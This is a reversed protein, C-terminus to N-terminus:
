GTGAFKTGAFKCIIMRDRYIQTGTFETGAFEKDRCIGSGTGAFEAFEQDQGQLNQGQLNSGTGAFEAFKCIRDRCIGAFESLVSAKDGKIAPRV